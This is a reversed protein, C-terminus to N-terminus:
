TSRRRCSPRKARFAAVQDLQPKFKEIDNKM